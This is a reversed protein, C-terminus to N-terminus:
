ALARRARRSVGLEFLAGPFGSKLVPGLYGAPVSPLHAELPTTSGNRFLLVPRCGNGCAGYDPDSPWARPSRYSARAPCITTRLRRHLSVPPASTRCWVTTRTAEALAPAPLPTTTSLRM